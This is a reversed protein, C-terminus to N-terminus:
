WWRVTVTTGQGPASDLEFSGPLATARERMSILGFGTAHGVAVGLDFGAGDDRVTLCGGSGEGALRVVARAGRGHRAANSLAERAIRLLAHRQEASVGV